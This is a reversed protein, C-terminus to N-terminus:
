WLKPYKDLIEQPYLYGNGNGLVDEWWRIGFVLRPIAFQGVDEDHVKFFLDTRGGTGPENPTPLTLVEECYKVRTGRFNDAMFKEFEEIKDSGVITGPWVCLQNFKEEEM